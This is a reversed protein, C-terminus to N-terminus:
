LELDDYDRNKKKPTNDNDQNLQKQRVKLFEIYTKLDRKSENNLKDLDKFENNVQPEPTYEYNSQKEATNLTPSDDLSDKYLHREDVRGLLYDTSVKFYDAIKSLTEYNPQLGKTEYGAITPRGVGLHKALQKQTIKYENRLHKLRQSFDM